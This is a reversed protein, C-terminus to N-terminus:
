ALWEIKGNQNYNGWKLVAERQAIVNEKPVGLASKNGYEYIALGGSNNGVEEIYFKIEKEVDEATGNIWTSQINSSLWFAAKQEEAFHKFNEVGTMHPSDFEFVDIGAEIIDPILEFIQGCSHLIFDMGLDHTLDTVQKYPGKFFKKYIRPSVFPSKQTGMDDPAMIADLKPYYEKYKRIQTLYFPLIKDILEQIKNANRAFDILLNNFGRLQSCLNFFGNVGMSGICYRKRGLFKFLWSKALKYREPNAANPPQWEDLSDWNNQFPGEIPHGFTKDESETGSTKWIVGWENITKNPHEWWKKPLGLGKRKEDDWSYVFKKYYWKGLNSLDGKIHPPYQAPQWSKPLVSFIPFFDSKLTPPAMPVRDPKNFHFARQVREKSKM